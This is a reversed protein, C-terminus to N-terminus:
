NRLYGLENECCANFKYSVDVHHRMEILKHTCLYFFSCLAYNIFRKYVPLHKWRCIGRNKGNRMSFQIVSKVSLILQDSIKAVLFIDLNFLCSLCLPDLVWGVSRQVRGGLQFQLDKKLEGRVLSFYGMEGKYTGWTLRPSPPHPPSPTPAQVSFVPEFIPKWFM